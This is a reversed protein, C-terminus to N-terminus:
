ERAFGEAAYQDALDVFSTVIIRKGTPCNCANCYIVPMPSVLEMALSAYYIGKSNLYDGLRRLTASDSSEYGWKDMCQTQLYNFRTYEDRIQTDRKRCSLQLFLFGVGVVLLRLM